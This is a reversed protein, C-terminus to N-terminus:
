VGSKDEIEWAHDLAHWAIRRAAYRPPWKWEGAGVATQLATAIAEREREKPPLLLKAAYAKEADRVHEVIKDRGRGGGRPGKRLAAARAQGRPRVGM